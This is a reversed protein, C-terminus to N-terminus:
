RPEGSREQPARVQTPAGALEIFSITSVYFEYKGTEMKRWLKRTDFMFESDFYGGIVSTDVSLKSPSAAM